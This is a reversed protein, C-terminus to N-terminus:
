PADRLRRISALLSDIRSKTLDDGRFGAASVVQQERYLVVSVDAPAAGPRSAGDDLAAAVTLPISLKEDFGLTQVRSTLSKSAVETAQTPATFVVFSRLGTARSEDVVTDIGRLLENLRPSFERVVIMVVPRDQYRCVYCVSKNAHPGTVARVYFSPVRDGPQLDAFSRSESASKTAEAALDDARSLVSGTGAPLLLWASWAAAVAVSRLSSLLRPRFTM